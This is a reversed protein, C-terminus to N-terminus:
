NSVVSPPSTSACKVHSELEAPEARKKDLDRDANQLARQAEDLKLACDARRQLAREVANKCTDLQSGLPRSRIIARKLEERQNTLFFFERAFLACEPLAALAKEVHKIDERPDTEYPTVSDRVKESKVEMSTGPNVFSSTM